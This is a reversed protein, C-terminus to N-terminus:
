NKFPNYFRGHNVFISFLIISILILVCVLLAIYDKLEFKKNTYWTRKKHKGFGRLDMANSIKEVRDMTSFILPILILLANKFREKLKAKRSLEVGRAQQALSIDIYSKQVDPFYRLTLAVAYAIKYNVGIKNLSSALESPNTTFLFVMGLPIVSIYKFFKTAQYFIQELTLTYTETFRLLEHKTGYLRVGEEPSFIFTIIENILLFILVYVLMLKIKAFKIKALYILTFSFVLMIIIIRIDYTYMVASTLIIFGLFKTLGSLGHIFSTKSDYSILKEQM